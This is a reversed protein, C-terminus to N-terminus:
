RWLGVEDVERRSRELGIRVPYGMLILGQPEWAEPLSLAERAVVPAFLPACLWCAGLGEAHAAIQILVGAMAVGQVAMVWEARSRKPDPYRDMDEMTLCVLIAVPAQSIRRHSRAIDEEVLDPDDGDSLRDERLHVGMAAALRQRAEVEQLVAFRWPQRNHASPSRTGAELVRRVIEEPVPDRTFRRVSRREHLLDYLKQAELTM